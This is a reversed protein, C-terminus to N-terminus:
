VQTYLSSMAPMQELQRYAEWARDYAEIWQQMAAQDDKMEAFHLYCLARYIRYLRLGYHASGVAFARTEADPWRISESLEVIREWMQISEDKQRLNREYNPNELM